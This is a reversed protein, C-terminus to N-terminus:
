AGDQYAWIVRYAEQAEVPLIEWCRRHMQMSGGINAALVQDGLLEHYTILEHCLRCGEDSRAMALATKLFPHPETNM